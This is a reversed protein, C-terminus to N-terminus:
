LYLSKVNYTKITHSLVTTYHAIYFTLIKGVKFSLLIILLYSLSIRHKAVASALWDKNKNKQLCHVYLVHILVWLLYTYRPLRLHGMISQPIFLM